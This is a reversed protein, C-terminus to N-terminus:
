VLVHCVLGGGRGQCHGDLGIPVVTGVWEGVKGQPPPPLMKKWGVIAFCTGPNMGAQQAQQTQMANMSPKNKNHLRKLEPAFLSDLATSGGASKTQNGASSGATPYRPTPVAPNMGFSGSNLGSLGSMGSNMGPMSLGTMGSNVGSMGTFGTMGSGMGTNGSNLGTMGYSPTSAMGVSSGFSSTGPQSSSSAM